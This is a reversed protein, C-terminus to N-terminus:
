SWQFLHHLKYSYFGQIWPLVSIVEYTQQQHCLMHGRAMVLDPLVQQRPFRTAM